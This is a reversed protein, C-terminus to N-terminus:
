PVLSALKRALTERAKALRSNVTARSVGLLAAADDYTRDDFYHLLIVERLEEPLADIETMLRHRSDAEESRESPTESQDLPDFPEETLRSFPIDAASRSRLWDGCVHIAIGRLWSGFKSPDDLAALGRLGRLLTEQALDEAATRCGIRACCVALVRASWRRALQEGAIRLGGRALRVLEADTM